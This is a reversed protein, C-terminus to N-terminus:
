AAFFLSNKCKKRAVAKRAIVDVANKKSLEERVCASIGAGDLIMVACATMVACDSIVSPALAM